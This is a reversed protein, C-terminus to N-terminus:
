THDKEWKQRFIESKENIWDHIFGDGLDHAAKKNAEKKASEIERVQDHMFVDFQTKDM